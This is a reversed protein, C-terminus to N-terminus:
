PLSADGRAMEHGAEDPVDGMTAVVEVPADHIRRPLISRFCRSSVITPRFRDRGASLSKKLLHFILQAESCLM